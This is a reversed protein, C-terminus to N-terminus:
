VASQQLVGSFVKKHGVFSFFVHTQCVTPSTRTNHEEMQPPSPVALSVNSAQMLM